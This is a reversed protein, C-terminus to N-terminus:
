LTIQLHHEITSVQTDYFTRPNQLIQGELQFM